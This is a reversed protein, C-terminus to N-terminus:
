LQDFVADFAAAAGLPDVGPLCHLADGVGSATVDVESDWDEVLTAPALESVAEEIEADTCSACTAWYYLYREEHPTMFADNETAYLAFPLGEFLGQDINPRQLANGTKLDLGVMGAVATYADEDNWAAVSEGEPFASEGVETTYFLDLFATDSTAVYTGYLVSPVLFPVMQQLLAVTQEAYAWPVEEPMTPNMLVYGDVLALDTGIFDNAAMTVVIGGMSHGSLVFSRSAFQADNTVFSTVTRVVLSYDELSAQGYKKGSAQLYAAIDTTRTSSAGHGPPDIVFVDRVGRDAILTAALAKGFDAGHALGPVVIVAEDRSATQDYHHVVHIKSGALDWGSPVAVCVDEVGSTAGSQFYTSPGTCTGTPSAALAVGNLWMLAILSM